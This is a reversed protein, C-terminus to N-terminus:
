QTPNIKFNSFFFMLNNSCFIKTEAPLLLLSHLKNKIQRRNDLSIKDETERMFKRKNRGSERLVPNQINNLEDVHNVARFSTKNQLNKVMVSVKCNITSTIMGTKKAESNKEAEYKSLDKMLTYVLIIIHVRSNRLNGKQM